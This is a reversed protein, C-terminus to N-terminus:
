QNRFYTIAGMNLLAFICLIKPEFSNENSYTVHIKLVLFIGFQFERVFWFKCLLLSHPDLWCSDWSEHNIHLLSPNERGRRAKILWYKKFNIHFNWVRIVVNMDLKPIRSEKVDWIHKKFIHIHVVLHKSVLYIEPWSNGSKCAFIAWIVGFSFITYWISFITSEFGHM